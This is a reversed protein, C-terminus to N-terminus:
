YALEHHVATNLVTAQAVPAVATDTAPATNTATDAAPLGANALLTDLAAPAALLQSTNIYFSKWEATVASALGDATSSRVIFDHTGDALPTSPTFTWQWDNGVVAEGLLAGNDFVELKLGAQATGALTPTNDDTLAYVNLLGQSAGVDDTMSVIVPARVSEEGSGIDYTYKYPAPTGTQDDAAWRAVVSIEHHGQNPELFNASWTWDSGTEVTGQLEGNDYVDVLTGPVATGKAMEYQTTNVAGEDPIRGGVGEWLRGYMVDTIVPEAMPHGSTGETVTWVYPSEVPASGDTPVTRVSLDHDGAALPTELTYSWEWSNAASTFEGIKVGHDLVEMHTGPLATGNIQPQPDNTVGYSGHIGLGSGNTDMISTIVPPMDAPSFGSTGTGNADVTVLFYDGTTSAGTGDARSSDVYLTHRGADLPTALTLSWHGDAGVLATDAPSPTGDIYLNVVTGADGTGQLTPRTDDTPLNGWNVLLGQEPGVNDTVATIAPAAVPDNGVVIAYEGTGPQVGSGDPFSGVTTFTHSGKALTQTVAYSWQSDAGVLATGLLTGNDYISVLTQPNAYGGLVPQTDNTSGGRDINGTFPAVDDTVSWMYPADVTLVPPVPTTMDDVGLQIVYSSAGTTSGSGDSRAGIITFDHTGQALAGTPTYSWAWDDGVAATGLLVGNDYVSVMTGPEGTGKLQPLTDNTSGGNDVRGTVPGTDDMVDTIVPTLVPTSDTTAM